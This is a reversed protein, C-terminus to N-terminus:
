VTACARCRVEDQRERVDGGSLETSTCVAERRWSSVGGRCCPGHTKLPEPAQKGGAQTSKEGLSVKLTFVRSDEVSDSHEISNGKQGVLEPGEESLM